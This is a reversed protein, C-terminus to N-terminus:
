WSAMTLATALRQLGNDFSVINGIINIWYEIIDKMIM